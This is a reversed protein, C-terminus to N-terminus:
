LSLQDTDDFGLKRGTEQRQLLAGFLHYLTSAPAPEDIFDGQDSLFKDRWLGEPTLYRWIAQTALSAESLYQQREGDDSVEALILAAKLWETQPWMRARQSLVVGDDGIADLAVRERDSVGVMGCAYLRKAVAMIKEDARQRAYRCLLWAWEFQHGPEVRRGIEGEAAKWDASFYERLFGAEPDIFVSRALNVLQSAWQSWVEDGGAQEWTLCAELLHMHANSQYPYDGEEVQAGLADAQLRLRDRVHVAQAELAGDEDLGARKASALAFMLFAQDYIHAADDLAEGSPTLMTRMLGDTRLYDKKLSELGKTVARRWPGAWGNRGAEAFVHIQRAQVRARRNSSVQRGDLKLAEVFVGNEDQGLTSWVPLAQLRAWDFLRRGGVVHDEVQKKEFDLHKPSVLKLREVVKKIDQSRSLDAVLVADKEAVIALNRVGVAAIIMGDASRAMCSESDEFIHPGVEGEGTEAVADWAGLDSWDFDVELVSALDTNEMVAYDISIRPANRFERGLTAVRRGSMSKVARTAAEEVAPAYRQLEQRLVQASVIFNGSNWLYGEAMYRKATTVDPKEVFAKVESLGSGTPCIYGYASSPSRPRVGLTVVRGQAAGRAAAEVASVFAAHDPIHHDSALFINIGEPDVDHTWAAAAAMAAASDRAEPELLIQAQIGVEDLQALIWERHAVGGVVILKGGSNVLPAVRVIAEHFLSRNGALPIFQKPRSPRSAPWLRTGAGGCMIVPYLKM